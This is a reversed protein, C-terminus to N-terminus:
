LNHCVLCLTAADQRLFVSASAASKPDPSEAHCSACAVSRQEGYLQVEGADAKLNLNQDFLWVGEVCGAPQNFGERSPLPRGVPHHRPGMSPANVDAPTAASCDPAADTLGPLFALWVLLLRQTKKWKMFGTYVATELLGALFRSKLL